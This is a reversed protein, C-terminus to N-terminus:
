WIIRDIECEEGSDLFYIWMESDDILVEEYYAYVYCYRTKIYVDRYDVKYLNSGERSVSTRYKTAIATGALALALVLVAIVRIFRGAILRHPTGATQQPIQVEISNTADEVEIMGSGKVTITRNGAALELEDGEELKMTEIRM